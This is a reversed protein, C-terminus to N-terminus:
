FISMSGSLFLYGTMWGSWLYMDPVEGPVLEDTLSQRKYVVMPPIYEGSASVCGLITIQAKNGSSNVIVHKQGRVAIREGPRHQLTIGSEDAHFILSPSHM